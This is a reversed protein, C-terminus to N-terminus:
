PTKTATPKLTPKATPSATPSSTPSPKVNPSLEPFLLIRNATLSEKGKKPFGIVLIRENVQIKSFGGKILGEEKKFENTLTNKEIDVIISEKTELDAVELTFNKSDIDVVEAWIRKVFSEIKIFRALLRRSETNYLGIITISNGKELDSIGVSKGNIDAFKTLEDVDVFRKNGRIDEITLQNNGLDSITGIVGRKKIINLKAVQTAIREKFESVKEDVTPTPTQAWINTVHSVYSTIVLFMLISVFRM